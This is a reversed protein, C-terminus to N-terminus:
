YGFCVDIQENFANQCHRTAIGIQHHEEPDQSLFYIGYDRGDINRVEKGEALPTGVSTATYFAPVGAGGARLHRGRRAHLGQGRRQGATHRDARQGARPGAAVRADRPGHRPARTM